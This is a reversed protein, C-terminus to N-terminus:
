TFRADVAEEPSHAVADELPMAQGAAWAAAFAEEGLGDRVGVVVRDLDAREVPHIHVKCSKRLAAAAGLLRAARELKHQGSAVAALGELCKTIGQMDGQQRCIALYQAFHAGAVSWQGQHQAMRGLRLLVAPDSPESAGIENWLAQGVELHALAAPYDGCADAVRGLDLYTWALLEPNPDALDRLTQLCEEHLSRATELDGELYAIGGMGHLYEAVADDYGWDQAAALVREQALRARPYDGQLVALHVLSQCCSWVGRHDGLQQQMALSEQILAEGAALDGQHIAIDGANMLAWANATTPVAAGPLALLQEMRQHGEVWYGRERWFFGMLHVFHSETSAHETAVMWDLAARLNDHEREVRDFWQQLASASISRDPKEFPAQFYALHAHSLATKEEITLQEGGYERLTELLRYRMEEGGGAERAGPEAIVLSCHQLEELYALARPEECVAEAAELSWGGRFVSLRAFFRQLEPSLLQYSWDLAARLSRHRVDAMRQRTVLLEFRGGVEHTGALRELMQQPTLVGSRAAALELALPIGELRCCVQAVVAANEDTVQFAPQGVVAREVFLRVAEYQLLSERGLLRGPDPLSLFPVRYPREGAIGLPERSTALLRLQPCAQLLTAALQACAVVLHECNDLVLLLQRPKLHEVLTQIPSRGPTEPLGLAPMVAQPVLAPDALPALEVLRVGDPFAEGIEAAVRLALRTKGSGGAGTLTVIRHAALLQEVEAIQDERGIFSTMQLPLNHLTREPSPPAALGAAWEREKLRTPWPPAAPRRAEARLHEFLARTEADPESNVERHLRLRLDRYVQAAAAYSGGGALVQMLGRQATERLPDVAVARRLHREAEGPDGGARAQTALTELAALYAQERSQREPFAWEEGCGELLPGRYLAIARELSASDHHAVAADFAVVDATTGSLDLSLTHRTPSQLRGAEPGLARRLDALTVRLNHSAQSPASEPWLTGALWAREVERGHRLALLALLWPGKRSRLRPLPAGDVHAEFPGFLCITLAPEAPGPGTL